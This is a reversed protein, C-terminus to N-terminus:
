TADAIRLARAWWSSRSRASFSASISRAFVSKKPLTLWSNRVGSVSMSAGISSMRARSAASAPVRSVSSRSWRLASRNSLSTFWRRSKERMSAPRASAAYAGVSRADSVTSRALLKREAISRAPSASATSQAFNSSGIKMSRDIHSFITSLRSEFANLNVNSPDIATRRNALSRAATSSIASVPMPM